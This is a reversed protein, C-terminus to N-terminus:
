RAAAIQSPKMWCAHFGPPIRHPIRVRAVPGQGIDRADFV